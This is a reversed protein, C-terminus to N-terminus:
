CLNLLGGDWDGAWKEWGDLGAGSQALDPLIAASILRPIKQGHPKDFYFRSKGRLRL